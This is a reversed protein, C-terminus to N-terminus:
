GRRCASDAASGQLCSATDGCLEGIGDVDTMTPGLLRVTRARIQHSTRYNIRLMRSRGRIGFGQANWSFAQQFIRQCLDGAFFMTDADGHREDQRRRHLAEIGLV